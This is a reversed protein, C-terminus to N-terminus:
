VGDRGDGLRCPTCGRSRGDLHAFPVAELRPREVDSVEYEPVADEGDADGVKKEVMELIREIQEDDGDGDDHRQQQVDVKPIQGQELSTRHRPVLHRRRRHRRRIFQRRWLHRRRITMRLIALRIRQARIRSYARV